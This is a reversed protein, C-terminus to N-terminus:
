KKLFDPLEDGSPGYASPVQAGLLRLYVGLQGRHHYNHNLLINRFVWYRPITLVDKGAVKMKWIQQMKEDTVTPLVQRVTVVSAEFTTLIEELNAPMTTMRNFDPVVFEDQCGMQVVRGPFTAMHLALEGIAMSKPHAKWELKDAPVRELFKRTTVAEANFEALLQEAISM